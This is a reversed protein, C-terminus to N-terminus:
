EQPQEDKTGGATAPAEVGSPTSAARPNQDYYPSLIPLLSLPPKCLDRLKIPWCDLGLRSILWDETADPNIFWRCFHCVLIYSASDGHASRTRLLGPEVDVGSVAHICDAAQPRWPRDIENYSIAGSQLLEVRTQAKAYLEARIQFPGWMSIRMHNDRCWALTSKLDLLTGQGPKLLWPHLKLSSSLWSITLAEIACQSNDSEDGTVKVFTAFSHSYRPPNVPPAEAGFILIYYRDAASAKGGWSLLCLAVLFGNLNLRLRMSKCHSIAFESRRPGDLCPFRVQEEM